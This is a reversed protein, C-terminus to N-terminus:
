ASGPSASRTRISAVAESAVQKLEGIASQALEEAEIGDALEDALTAVDPDVEHQPSTDLIAALRVSSLLLTDAAKRWRDYNRSELFPERV